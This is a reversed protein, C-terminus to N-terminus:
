IKEIEGDENLIYLIEEGKTDIIRAFGQSGDDESYIAGVAVFEKADEITWTETLKFYQWKEVTNGNVVLTYQRGADNELDGIYDINVSKVSTGSVTYLRLPIYISREVNDTTRKEGNWKGEAFDNLDEQITQEDIIGALETYIPSFDIKDSISNEDDSVTVESTLEETKENQETSEEAENLKSSEDSLTYEMQETSEQNEKDVELETDSTKESLPKIEVYAYAPHESSRKYMFYKGYGRCKEDKYFGKKTVIEMKIYRYYNYDAKTEFYDTYITITNEEAAKQTEYAPYVMDFERLGNEDMRTQIRIFPERFDKTESSCATFLTVCLIMCFIIAFVRFKKM